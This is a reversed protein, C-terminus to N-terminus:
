VFEYDFICRENGMSECKVEIIKIKKRHYEEVLKRIIGRLRHCTEANSGSNVEASGKVTVKGDDFDVELVWGRYKLIKKIASFFDEGTQKVVEVFEEGIALGERFFLAYSAQAILNEYMKRIRFLETDSIKVIRM